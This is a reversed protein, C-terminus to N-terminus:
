ESRSFLNKIIYECRYSYRVIFYTNTHKYMTRTLSQSPAGIVSYIARSVLANISQSSQPSTSSTTWLSPVQGSHSLGLNSEQSSGIKKWNMLWNTYSLLHFLKDNPKQHEPGAELHFWPRKPLSSQEYESNNKMPHYVRQGGEKHITLWQWLHSRWLVFYQFVFVRFLFWMKLLLPLYNKVWPFKNYYYAVLLHWKNNSFFLNMGMTKWPRSSIEM